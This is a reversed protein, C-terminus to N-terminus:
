TSGINQRGHHLSTSSTALFRLHLPCDVIKPGSQRAAMPGVVVVESNKRRVMKLVRIPYEQRLSVNQALDVDARELQALFCMKTKNRSLLLVM